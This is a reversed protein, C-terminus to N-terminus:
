GALLTSDLDNRWRGLFGTAVIRPQVVHVILDDPNGFPEGALEVNGEGCDNLHNGISRLVQRAGVGQQDFM